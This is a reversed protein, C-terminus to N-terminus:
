RFVPINKAYIKSGIQMRVIYNGEAVNRTDWTLNHKGLSIDKKVLTVIERGNIDNIKIVVRDAHELSFEIIINPTAQFFSNIRLNLENDSKQRLDSNIVRTLDSLPRSWLTGEGTGDNAEALINAGSVVLSSIHINTLGSNFETWSEGNNTSLFVGGGNIGAYIKNGSVAFCSVGISNTNWIGKNVSTWSEGNNTSLFVGEVNTGAFINSGNVAFCTVQPFGHIYTGTILGSNALTWSEGNNTSLYVYGGGTSAFINGGSVAFAHVIAMGAQPFASDSKTWNSGNDKSLFVGATATGAFIISNNVTLCTIRTDTIGSDVEIWNAGKNNSRFIGGSSGTIGVFINTSNSAFCSIYNYPNLLPLGSNAAIWTEGNDTSRFVGMTQTGAFINGDVAALAKIPGGAPQNIQVWQANAYLAISLILAVCHTFRVKNKKM